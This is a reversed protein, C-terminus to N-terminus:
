KKDLVNLTELIQEAPHAIALAANAEAVGKGYSTYIQQLDLVHGSIIGVFKTTTIDIINPQIFPRNVGPKLFVPSGSSGGISFADLLYINKGLTDGGATM